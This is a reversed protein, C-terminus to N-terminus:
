DTASRPRNQAPLTAAIQAAEEVEAHLAPPYDALDLTFKTSLYLRDAPSDSALFARLCGIRFRPEFDQLLAQSAGSPGIWYWAMAAGFRETASGTELYDLISEMAQQAGLSRVFPEILQRNGSPCHDHVIAHVIHEAHERVAEHDIACAGGIKLRNVECREYADQVPDSSVETPWTVDVRFATALDDLLPEFLRLRDALETM